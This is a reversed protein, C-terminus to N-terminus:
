IVFALLFTREFSTAKKTILVIETEFHIGQFNDGYPVAIKEWTIKERNNEGM